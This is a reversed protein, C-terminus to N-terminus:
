SSIQNTYRDQWSKMRRQPMAQTTPALSLASDTLANLNILPRFPLPQSKGLKLICSIPNRLMVKDEKSTPVDLELIGRCVHITQANEFMFRSVKNRILLPARRGLNVYDLSRCRVKEM